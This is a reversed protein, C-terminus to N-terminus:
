NYGNTRTRAIFLCSAIKQIDENQFPVNQVTRTIEVAEKLSKEMIAKLGDVISPSSPEIPKLIEKEVSKKIVEVEIKPTIRRGNQHAIKTLLIEDGVKPTHMVIEQHVEPTAFYAKEIGEHEVTYLLYNGYSSSGEFPKDKLLKVTVPKNLLLELKPRNNNNTKEM